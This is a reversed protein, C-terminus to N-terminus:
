ACIWKKKFTNVLARIAEDTLGPKLVRRSFRERFDSIFKM